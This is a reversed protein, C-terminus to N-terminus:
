RREMVECAATLRTLIARRQEETFEFEREFSQLVEGVTSPRDVSWGFMGREDGYQVTVEFRLPEGYDAAYLGLNIDILRWGFFGGPRKCTGYDCTRRQVPNDESPRAQSLRVYTRFLLETTYRDVDPINQFDRHHVVAHMSEVGYRRMVFELGSQQARIEVSVRKDSAIEHLMATLTRM